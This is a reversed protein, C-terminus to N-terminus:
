VSVGFIVSGDVVGASVIGMLSQWLRAGDIRLSVAAVPLSDAIESRMNM